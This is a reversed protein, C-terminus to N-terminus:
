SACVGGSGVLEPYVVGIQRWKPWGARLLRASRAIRGESIWRNLIKTSVPGYERRDSTRLIWLDFPPQPESQPDLERQIPVPKYAIPPQTPPVLQNPTALIPPRPGDGSRLWELAQTAGDHDPVDLIVKEFEKQARVLQGNQVLAVARACRATAAAVPNERSQNIVLTFDGIAPAFRGMAYYVKGRAMLLEALNRGQPFRQIQKTLWILAAEHQGQHALCSARGCHSKILSPDNTVALEFDAQALEYQGNRLFATGRKEVVAPQKPELQLSRTWDSIARVFQNARLFVNARQNFADHNTPDIGIARDFCFLANHLQSEQLLLRGRQLWYSAVHGNTDIAKAIDRLARRRDGLQARAQSRVFRAQDHEPDSKILRTLENVANEIEGQQLQSQSRLLRIESDDPSQRLAASYDLLALEYKGLFEHAKGRRCLTKADERGRQILKDFYAIAAQAVPAGLKRYQQAANPRLRIATELYSIAESWNELRAAVNAAWVFNGAHKPRLRIAEDFDEAAQFFKQQEFRAIGRLYHLESLLAQEAAPAAGANELARGFAQEARHLSSEEAIAEELVSSSSIEEHSEAEQHHAMLIRGRLLEAMANRSDLRLARESDDEAAALNHYALNVEGRGIYAATSIENNEIILNYDLLAEILKGRKFNVRGRSLLVTEDGPVLELYKSYDLAALDHIHMDRYLDGRMQLAQSHHPNLQIALTLEQIAGAPDNLQSRLRACEVLGDPESGVRERLLEIDQHAQKMDGHAAAAQARIKLAQPRTEGARLLARGALREAEEFNGAELELRALGVLAQESQENEDLALLFDRRAKDSDGITLYIHGRDCFLRDDAEGAKVRQRFDELAPEAYSKLLRDYPEPDMTLHQAAILDRFALHWQGLEGYAAARWALTEAHEGRLRISDSCDDLAQQFNGLKLQVYGRLSYCKGLETAEAEVLAHNLSNLASQFNNESIEAQALRYYHISRGPEDADAADHYDQDSVPGALPHDEIGTPQISDAFSWQCHPCGDTISLLKRHCQPCRHRM